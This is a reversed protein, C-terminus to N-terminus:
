HRLLEQTPWNLTQTTGILRMRQDISVAATIYGGLLLSMSALRVSVAAFFAAFSRAEARRSEPQSTAFTKSAQTCRPCAPSLGTASSSLRSTFFVTGPDRSDTLGHPM